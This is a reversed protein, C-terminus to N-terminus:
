LYTASQPAVSGAIACYSPLIVGYFLGLISTSIDAITALKPQFLLYFCLRGCGSAYDAPRSSVTAIILLAQCVVLTTKAAPAIGQTCWRSTNWSASLRDGCVHAYIGGSRLPSSLALAIAVIGSVISVL